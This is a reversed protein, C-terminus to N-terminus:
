VGKADDPKLEIAKSYDVIALDYHDTNYYSGGRNFYAEICNPDLEIAKNCDALALDWHVKENYAWARNVYAEETGEHIM